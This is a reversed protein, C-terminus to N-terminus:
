GDELQDSTGAADERVARVDDSVPGTGVHLGVELRRMAAKYRRGFRLLCRSPYLVDNFDLGVLVKLRGCGFTRLRLKAQGFAVVCRVLMRFCCEHEMGLGRRLLCRFDLPKGPVGRDCATGDRRGKRM